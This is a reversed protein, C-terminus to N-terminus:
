AIKKGLEVAESLEPKSLDIQYDAHKNKNWERIGLLLLKNLLEYLKAHKRTAVVCISNHLPDVMQFTFRPLTHNEKSDTTIKKKSM